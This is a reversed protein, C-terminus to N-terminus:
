HKKNEAIYQTYFWSLGLLACALGIFSLVRYLGELAAADYFFVKAITLLVIVLSAYRMAKSNKVASFYLLGIGMVLWAISYSYIEAGSTPLASYVDGAHYVFRINISVWCFILFIIIANIIRTIEPEVRNLIMKNIVALWAAPAAFVVAFINFIVMGSYQKHALLPNATTLFYCTLYIIALLSFVMGSNYFVVRKYHKGIYIYLASFCLMLNLAIVHKLYSLPALAFSVSDADSSVFKISTHLVRHCAIFLFIMSLTEYLKVLKDDQKVALFFASATFCISFIFFIIPSPLVVNLHNNYFPVAMGYGFVGAFVLRLYELSDLLLFAMALLGIVLSIYRICLLEFKRLRWSMATMQVVLLVSFINKSFNLSYLAFCVFISSTLLFLGQIYEGYCYKSLIKRNILEAGSFFCALFYPIVFWLSVSWPSPHHPRYLAGIKIYLLLYLVVCSVASLASWFLPNSERRFIFYGLGTYISAFVLIFMAYLYPEPHQWCALLVANLVLSAFPVFGYTRIDAFALAVSALALISFLGWSIVDMQAVGGIVAFLAIASGLGIYNLITVLNFHSKPGSRVEELAQKSVFVLTASIALIFLEASLVHAQDFCFILWSLVWIFACALIAISYAWAERCKVIYILAAFTIYLYTFLLPASLGQAGMIAPTFFGGVMGLVAIPMGYSLALYVVLGTVCAMGFLSVYSPILHYM